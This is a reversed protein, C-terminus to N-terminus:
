IQAKLGAFVTVGPMPYGPIQEYDRDFINDVGMFLDLYQQLAYSGKINAVFFDSVKQIAGGALLDSDYLGLVYEADCTLTLKGIRWQAVANFIHEPKGERNLHPNHEPGDEVDTLTYVLGFELKDSPRIEVGTELGRIHFQGSNRNIFNPPPAANAEQQILNGVDMYFPNVFASLCQAFQQNLGLEYSWVKEPRLEENHAPFLHLESFAPQRFGKAAKARATTSDTVHCLLGASPIAEWKEATDDWHGRLGLTNVWCGYTLENFVFLAHNNRTYDGFDMFRAPMNARAWAIWDEQPAAWQHQYDYGATLVERLCDTEFLKRAYKTQLGMTRDKSHWYDAISPMTFDHEGANEYFTLGFEADDDWKGILDADWSYRRYKRRDDHTYPNTVPGPDKGYDHFHQGALELRWIEDLQYGARLSLFDADYSSNPRYGDTQKHDYTAYYDFGHINGGHRALAHLTNYSGFSFLGGSQFGPDTVRKTIINVVGGMADSGYLASEPGRVVEIREVNSLPLTQTVTCGFLSMKEPRGDVLTLIRRANSGLARIEIDQRGYIADRRIYVGPCSGIVDMVYDANASEIEKEDIVSVASTVDKVKRAMRTATVVIEEAAFPANTAPEEADAVWAGFLGLGLVVRRLFKNFM